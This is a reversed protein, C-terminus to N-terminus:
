PQCVVPQVTITGVRFSDVNATVRFRAVRRNPFLTALNQTGSGNVAATGFSTGAADFAEVTAEGVFGDGDLNGASPVFYSTAASPHDFRVDLFEAGDVTNSNNGGVVGLGNLNLVNITGSGTVLVGPPDDDLMAATLTGRNTYDVTAVAGIACECRPGEATAPCTCSFTGAGDTCTGGNLCPASACDDVNTACTAGEFGAACVCTFSAVGDTCTGGNLCPASACDDINTECRSGGFGTPCACTAVGGAEACVGGNACPSPECASVRADPEPTTTVEGCGVVVLAALCLFSRRAM